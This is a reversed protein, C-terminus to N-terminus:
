ASKLDQVEEVLKEMRQDVWAKAYDYAEDIEVHGVVVKLSVGVRASRFNGLNETYSIEVGVECGVGGFGSEEQAVQEPLDVQQTNTDESLVQGKESITKTEVAEGTKPKLKIGMANVVAEKQAKMIDVMQPGYDEFGDYFTLVM